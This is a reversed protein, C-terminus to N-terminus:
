KKEEDDNEEMFDPVWGPAEKARIWFYRGRFIIKFEKFINMESKPYICLRKSHFCMEDQDNIDLLEGWKTAIRKFTNDSCLKFPIGEVEVWAIRGETNFDMSDRKLQSFWSGISWNNVAKRINALPAFQKVRGFLSKSLDKSLLCEDSLVLAPTAKSEKNEPQM